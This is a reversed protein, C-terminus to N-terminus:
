LAAGGVLAFTKGTGHRGIVQREDLLGTGAASM